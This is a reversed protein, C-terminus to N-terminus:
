FELKDYGIELDGLRIEIRSLRGDIKELEKNIDEFVDKETVEEVVGTIAIQSATLILVEIAQSRPMQKEQAFTNILDVTQPALYYTEAVKAQSDM